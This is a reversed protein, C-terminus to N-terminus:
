ILNALIKDAKRYDSSIGIDIFQKKFVLGKINNNGTEKELIEKEFSFRVPM